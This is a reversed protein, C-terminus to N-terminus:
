RAVGNLFDLWQNTIIKPHHRKKWSQFGNFVLNKQLNKDKILKRISKALQITDDIKVLLGNKLHEINEVGGNTATSIVPIKAAFAEVIVNGFPEIRSPCIFIDGSSLLDETNNIWGLFKVRNKINLDECLKILNNKEPGDGAILLVVENILSIAKFLTDFAKNRHFRGFAIIKIRDKFLSDINNIKKGKNEPIFNYLLKIKKSSWGEQILWDAIGKTNAVLWDCNKYYKLNYYGGLRGVHTWNGDPTFESARNMWSLVLNPNYDLIQSKLKWKDIPSFLRRYHCKEVIIGENKFLKIREEFPRISVKQQCGSKNISIALREFFREAGGSKSGAMTQFLKLGPTKGSM